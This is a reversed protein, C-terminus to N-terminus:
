NPSPEEIHDIVVREVDAKTSQLKLGLQHSLANALGPADHFVALVPTNPPTLPGWEIFVDVKEDLGTEDILPRGFESEANDSLGGAFDGMTVDRGGFAISPGSAKPQMPGVQGCIIPFGDAEPKLHGDSSVASEDGCPANDVHLRLQRGFKVPKAFVLAFVPVKEAEFHVALKFRDALLSQMMVRYQDATPNGPARAEIDFHETRCWKPLAQLIANRQNPETKYAFFIYQFLSWNTASFVGGTQPVEAGLKWSFNTNAAGSRSTSKKVSAARPWTRKSPCALHAM